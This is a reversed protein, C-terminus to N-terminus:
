CRWVSTSVLVRGHWCLLMEGQRKAVHFNRVQTRRVLWEAHTDTFQSFAVPTMGLGSFLDRWPVVCGGAAAAVAALIRPQILYREIRRVLDLNGNCVADLSELLVSYFQVGNVFNRRFSHVGGGASADRWGDSDVFVTIRPAIRRLFRLFDAASASPGLHRFIAPSLNVALIESNLIRLSSLSHLLNFPSSRFFVFDIQFHIGLDHAFQHLNDKVLNAELSSDDPVVATIRLNPSHLGRSSSKSALEQIFSPWHCGFGIDFDIIHLFMASDLTELLAQNATFNAFTTIPSVESFSKYARIKQITDSSSTTTTAATATSGSLLSQLAEKFHLASRLLPKELQQQQQQQQSQQPPTSQAAGIDTPRPALRQIRRISLAINLSFKAVGEQNEQLQLVEFMDEMAPIDLGGRAANTDIFFSQLAFSPYDDKVQLCLSLAM